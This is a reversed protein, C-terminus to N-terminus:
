INPKRGRHPPLQPRIPLVPPSLLRDQIELNVQNGWQAATCAPRSLVSVFKFFKNGKPPYDAFIALCTRLVKDPTKDQADMGIGGGGSPHRM